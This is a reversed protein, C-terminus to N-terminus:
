SVGTGSSPPQQRQWFGGSGFNNGGQQNQDFFGGGDSPQPQTVPTSQSPDVPAQNAAAGVQHFAVLGSVLGFVVLSAVILRKKYTDVLDMAQAKSMRDQPLPKLGRVNQQGGQYQLPASMQSSRIKDSERESFQNEQPVWALPGEDEYPNTQM